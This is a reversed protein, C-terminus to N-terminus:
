PTILRERGGPEVMRLRTEAGDADLIVYSQDDGGVFSLGAGTPSAGIKVAPQGNPQMLRLLATETVGDGPPQITITARLRGEGDVIELGSGRLIGPEGQAVAPLVRGLVLGNLLLLNTMTLATLVMERKM